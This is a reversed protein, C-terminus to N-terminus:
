AACVYDVTERRGHRTMWARVEARPGAHAVSVVVPRDGLSALGDPPIVPAGHIHLHFSLAGREFRLRDRYVVDPYRYRDPLRFKPVDIAFQRRNIATNWGLTRLCRDFHAPLLEHAYVVPPPWGRREREEDFRRVAFM